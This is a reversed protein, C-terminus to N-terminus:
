LIPLAIRGSNKVGSSSQAPWSLFAAVEVFLLHFFFQLRKKTFKKREFGGKRKEERATRTRTREGRKHM